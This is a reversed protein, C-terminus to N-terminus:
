MDHKMATFIRCQAKYPNEDWEEYLFRGLGMRCRYRVVCDVADVSCYLQTMTHRQHAGCDSMAIAHSALSAQLEPCHPNHGEPVIVFGSPSVLAWLILSAVMLPTM